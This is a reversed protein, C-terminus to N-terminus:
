YETRGLNARLIKCVIAVSGDDPQYCVRETDWCPTRSMVCATTEGNHAYVDLRIVPEVETDSRDKRGIFITFFDGRPPPTTHKEAWMELLKSTEELTSCPERDCSIVVSGEIVCIKELSSMDGFFQGDYVSVVLLADDESAM